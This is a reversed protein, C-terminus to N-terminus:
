RFANENRQETENKPKRTFDTSKLFHVINQQTKCLNVGDLDGESYIFLRILFFYNFLLVCYVIQSHIHSCSKRRM